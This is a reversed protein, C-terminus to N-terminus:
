FVKYLTAFSPRLKNNIYNQILSYQNIIWNYCHLHHHSAPGPVKSLRVHSAWHARQETLLPSAMSQVWMKRPPPPPKNGNSSLSLDPGALRMEALPCDAAGCSEGGCHFRCSPSLLQELIYFIYKPYKSNDKIQRLLLDAWINDSTESCNSTKTGMGLQSNDKIIIEWVFGGVYFVTLM